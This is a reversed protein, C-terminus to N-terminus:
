EGSGFSVKSKREIVLPMRSDQEKMLSADISQMARKNIDDYYKDRAKMKEEPARCLVLGGIEIVGDGRTLMGEYEDYDERKCLEWGERRMRWVNQDDAANLLSMRVWRHVWGPRPDPDPLMSPPRYTEETLARTERERDETKSREQSTRPKFVTSM